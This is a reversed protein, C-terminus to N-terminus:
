AVDTGYINELLTVSFELAYIVGSAL